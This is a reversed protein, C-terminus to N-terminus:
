PQDEMSVQKSIWGVGGRGDRVVIIIRATSKGYDEYRPLDLRNAINDDFQQLDDASPGPDTGDPVATPTYGTRRNGVKGNFDGAEAYWDISLHEFHRTRAINDKQPNAAVYDIAGPVALPEAEGIDMNLLLGVHKDRKVKVVPDDQLVLAGDPADYNVERATGGDASSAVMGGDDSAVGGDGGDDPAVGADVEGNGPAPAGTPEDFNETVFVGDITPNHNGPITPDAPLHLSYMASLTKFGEPLMDPCAPTVTVMLAIDLNMPHTEAPPPTDSRGAVDSAPLDCTFIPKGLDGRCLASLLAPPFPNTFTLNETDGLQFPPPDGLGLTQYIAKFDDESFPCIFSNSAQDAVMPVPCWQWHYSAASPDVGACSAPLHDAPPQYLLTSLTTAQAFSPQPPEARVALIRPNDLLTPKNNGNGCAAVALASALLATNRM